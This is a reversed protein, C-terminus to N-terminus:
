ARAYAVLGRKGDAFVHERCLVEDGPQFAWVEEDPIRGSLRYTNEALHEAQVPRWCETGEDLLAVYVWISM